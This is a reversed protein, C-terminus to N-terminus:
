KTLPSMVVAWSRLRAPMSSAWAATTQGASPELSASMFDIRQTIAISDSAGCTRVTTSTFL